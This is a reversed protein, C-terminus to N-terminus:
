MRQKRGGLEWSEALSGAVKRRLRDKTHVRKCRGSGTAKEAGLVMM